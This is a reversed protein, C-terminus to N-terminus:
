EVAAWPSAGDMVAAAYEASRGMAIAGRAFGRDAAQMYTLNHLTLM